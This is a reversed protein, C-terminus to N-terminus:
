STRHIQTRQLKLIRIVRARDGLVGSYLLVQYQLPIEVWDEIEGSIHEEEVKISIHQAHSPCESIRNAMRAFFCHGSVQLM